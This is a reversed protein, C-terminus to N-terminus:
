SSVNHEGYIEKIRKDLKLFSHVSLGIWIFGFITNLLSFPLIFHMLSMIAAGMVIPMWCAYSVAMRSNAILINETERLM